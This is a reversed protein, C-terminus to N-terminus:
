RLFIKFAHAGPSSKLWRYIQSSKWTAVTLNSQIQFSAAKRDQFFQNSIIKRKMRSSSMVELTLFAKAQKKHRIWIKTGLNRGLETKWCERFGLNCFGSTALRIRNIHCVQISFFRSSSLFRKLCMKAAWKSSKQPEKFSQPTSILWLRM